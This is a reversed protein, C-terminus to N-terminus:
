AEGATEDEDGDADDPADAAAKAEIKKFANMITAQGQHWGKIWGQETEAGTPYPATCTLGQAGAIEGEAFAKDVVPTRDLPLEPEFGIPSNLFRAVEAEAQRQEVMKGEADGRLKLAFDIAKKTFGQEVLEKKVEKIDDSIAKKDVELGEIEHLKRALVARREMETLEFDNIPPPAPNENVTALQPRAM